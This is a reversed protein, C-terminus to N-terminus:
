RPNNLRDQLLAPAVVASITTAFTDLPRRYDTHMIRWTTVNAIVQEILYCIKNIQWPSTLTPTVTRSRIAQHIRPAPRNAALIGPRWPQKLIM